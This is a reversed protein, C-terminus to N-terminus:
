YDMFWMKRDRGFGVFSINFSIFVSNKLNKHSLLGSLILLDWAVNGVLFPPRLIIFMSFKIVASFIVHNQRSLILCFLEGNYLRKSDVIRGISLSILKPYWYISSFSGFICFLNQCSARKDHVYIHLRISGFLWKSNLWSGIHYLGRIDFCGSKRGSSYM